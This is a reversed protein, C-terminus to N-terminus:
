REYVGMMHTEGLMHPKLANDVVSKRAGAPVDLEAVDLARLTFYYRHRGHGKPPCPGGYRAHGFGTMGQKAGAPSEESGAGRALGNVNAPLDYVVWHIFTGMPADPDEVTLVLSKTGEPVGEWALQPSIDTGECTFRKPITEGEKFDPSKIVFNM